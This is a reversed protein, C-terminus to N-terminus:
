GAAMFQTSQLRVRGGPAVAQGAQPVSSVKPAPGVGV